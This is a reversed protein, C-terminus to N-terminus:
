GLGGVLTLDYTNGLLKGLEFYQSDINAIYGTTQIEFTDGASPAIAGAVSQITLGGDDTTYDVGVTGTAVQIGYNLGEVTFTTASTFILTWYDTLTSLGVVPTLAIDTTAGETLLRAYARRQFRNIDVYDVGEIDEITKNVLSLPVQAGLSLTQPHLIGPADITGQVEDEIARTVDIRRYNALMYVTIDLYIEVITVAELQLIVPTTRKTNLLAGVTGILGSGTETYPNWSGTPVPDTGEKALIVREFIAGDGNLAKAKSIGSVSKAIAEYDAHTVARDNTPYTAPANIKAEAISEKEAGGSPQAPNTVSTVFPYSGNLRTLKNAGVKNGDRGGGVRYSATVNNTGSAPIKGNTGDGFIVKTQDYEDIEALYHKDLPGSSNFNNVKTWAVAPGGEAVYVVLSWAGTPDATIPSRELSFEQGASGDSSGLTEDITTGHYATEGTYTGAGVAVFDSVLEFTEPDSGDSTDVRIKEGAPVTGAGSTVFTLDVQASTRPSLAYGLWKAHEIVSRRQVASPPLAENACRDQYYSINGAMFAFLETLVVGLDAESRDTWEPATVEALELADSRFGEFDRTGLDVSLTDGSLTTISVM